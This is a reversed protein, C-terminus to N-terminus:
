CGGNECSEANRPRRDTAGHCRCHSLCPLDEQVDEDSEPRQPEADAHEEKHDPYRPIEVVPCRLSALCLLFWWETAKVCM